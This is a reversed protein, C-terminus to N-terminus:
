NAEVKDGPIELLIEKLESNDTLLIEEEFPNFTDKEVKLIHKGTKEKIEIIGEENTEGCLYGDLFVKANKLPIEETGNKRLVKIKLVSEGTSKDLANFQDKGGDIGATTNKQGPYYESFPFNAAQMFYYALGILIFGAFLFWKAINRHGQSASAKKIKLRKTKGIELIVISIDDSSGRDQALKVLQKAAENVDRTELLYDKIEEKNILPDNINGTLGDSCLLIFGNKPCLCWSNHIGMNHKGIYQTLSEGMNHTTSLLEIENKDADICFLPSDGSNAVFLYYPEKGSTKVLGASVLTTCMNPLDQVKQEELIIRNIDIYTNKLFENIDDPNSFIRNKTVMSEIEKVVIASAKGGGKVGGVGDAVAAIAIINYENFPPRAEYIKCLTRDDNTKQRGSISIEAKKIM